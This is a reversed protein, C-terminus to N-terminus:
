IGVLRYRGIGPLSSCTLVTISLSLWDMNCYFGESVYLSHSFIIIHSGILAAPLSQEVKTM